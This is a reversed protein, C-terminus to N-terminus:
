RMYLEDKDVEDLTKDNDLKDKESLGMYTATFKTPISLCTKEDIKDPVRKTLDKISVLQRVMDINHESCFQGNWHTNHYQIMAVQLMKRFDKLKTNGPAQVQFSGELDHYVTPSFHMGVKITRMRAQKEAGEKKEQQARLKGQSKVLSLKQTLAHKTSDKEPEGCANLVSESILLTAALIAISNIKM